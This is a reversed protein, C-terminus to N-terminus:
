RQFWCYVHGVLNLLAGGIIWRLDHAWLGYVLAVVGLLALFLHVPNAHELFRKEVFTARGGNKYEQVRREAWSM